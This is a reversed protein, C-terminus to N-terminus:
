ARVALARDHAEDYFRGLKSWDFAEARAEVSNRLAIRGRRELRCFALMRRSLDAAAESYSKGRRRLVGLGWEEHDAMHESVYRGFGALDSTIAPVGMAVAELPTYGWPEYASPFVGLHCGRVFQEYEIGWLPNVTSIFRPHYVIKVPDEKRNFLGLQRIHNLVPDSSEDELVHTIVPPLGERHLAQQTRRFRLSWYQSVLADLHVREGAAARQYLEGRMERLIEDCVTRLETLVGRYHLADPNISRTPRDTIIFLVVNVPLEFEKLQANLRAMAEMCLDFGKNRPEFRGSTFFYLTRDLDMEYSPFFYGMMFRHIAEKSEAHMHQLQHGVDFRDMNLGNPVIVDPARGLLKACEEGTIPSVTTFVHAGHASAREIAHQPRVNYRVCETAEDASELHEYFHEDNSAMYRGLLTAHTTFVTRVEGANRRLMPIALGSMWEHFHAVVRRPKKAGGEVFSIEQVVEAAMTSFAVVSDILPDAGPLEVGLHDWVRYKAEALAEPTMEHEVLIVRPAGSVLWEGYHAKVGREALHKLVTAMRGSPRKPEFELPPGSAPCPGILCYRRGWRQVMRPVKSRIVQYIGGVKHCVEWAVEVLM